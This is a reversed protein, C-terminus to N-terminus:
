QSVEQIGIDGVTEDSIALLLGFRDKRDLKWHTSTIDLLWGEPILGDFFPFLITSHYPERQLPLTLSAALPKESALYDHIYQFAYGEETEILAAALRGQIFVQGKRYAKTM